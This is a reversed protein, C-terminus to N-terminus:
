PASAACALRLLEDLEARVLVRLAPAAASRCRQPDFPGRLRVLWSGAPLPSKRVAERVQRKILNRTVARRAHRKPAIVGLSGRLTPRARNNVSLPRQPAGDTSLAPVLASQEAYHLAFHPTQAITPQARLAKIGTQNLPAWRRGQQSRGDLVPAGAGLETM